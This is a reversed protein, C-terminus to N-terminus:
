DFDDRKRFIGANLHGYIKGIIDQISPHNLLVKLQELSKYSGPPITVKNPNKNRKVTLIRSTRTKNEENMDSHELGQNSRSAGSGDPNVRSSIEFEGELTHNKVLVINRKTQAYLQNYDVLSQYTGSRVTFNGNPQFSQLLSFDEKMTQINLLKQIDRLQDIRRFSLLQKRGTRLTFRKGKVSVLYSSLKVEAVMISDRPCADWIDDDDFNISYRDKRVKSITGWFHKKGQGRKKTYVRDGPKLQVVNKLLMPQNLCDMLEKWYGLSAVQLKKKKSFPNEMDISGDKRHTWTPEVNFGYKQLSIHFNMLQDLSEYQGSVLPYDKGNHLVGNFVFPLYWKTPVHYNGNKEAFTRCRAEFYPRLDWKEEKVNVTCSVEAEDEEDGPVKVASAQKLLHQLYKIVGKKCEATCM